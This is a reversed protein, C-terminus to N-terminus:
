IMLKGCRQFILAGLKQSNSFSQIIQCLQWAMLSSHFCKTLMTDANHGRWTDACTQVASCSSVEWQDLTIVHGPCQGGMKDLTIVHGPCQGRMPGSHDRSRSVSQSWHGSNNNYCTISDKSGQLCQRWGIMISGINFGILPRSITPHGILRAWRRDCKGDSIGPVWTLHNSFETFM